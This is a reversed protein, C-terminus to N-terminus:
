ICVKKVRPIVAFKRLLRRLLSRTMSTTPSPKLPLPSMHMQRFIPCSCRCMSPDWVPFSRLMMVGIRHLMVSIEQARDLNLLISSFAFLTLHFNLYYKHIDYVRMCLDMTNVQSFYTPDIFFANYDRELDGHIRSFAHFVKVREDEDYNSNKSEEDVDGLITPMGGRLANDLFMQKIAGNFLHNATNTEVGATLDSIMSRALEFKTKIFGASRVLDAIKPVDEVHGALGYLSVLTVSEGPAIVLDDVAAFASSTKADGYQPNELISSVSSTMLGAAKVLSTSQGFIKSSDYVIPLLEAKDDDNQIFSICYHGATEIKVEASDSTETSMRYFPLNLTDDAHYVGMWGELTRGMNKLGWDLKGGSPEIKALGDLVSVTLDSSGDNTFTTRRVLAAFDEEPLVFYSVSTTLKNVTDIEKVEMENTGVYMIRKPKEEENAGGEVRANTPSFPETFFSKM